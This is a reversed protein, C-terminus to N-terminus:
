PCGAREKQPALIVPSGGESPVINEQLSLPLNCDLFDQRIERQALPIGVKECLRYAEKYCRKAAVEDHTLAAYHGMNSLTFIHCEDYGETLKSVEEIMPRMKEPEGKQAYATCLINQAWMTAWNHGKGLVDKLNKELEEITRKLEPSKVSCMRLKVRLTNKLTQILFTKNQLAESIEQAKLLYSLAQQREEMSNHLVALGNLGVITWHYFKASEFILISTELLKKAIPLNEHRYTLILGLMYKTIGVEREDKVNKLLANMEFLELATDFNGLFFHAIGIHNRMAALLPPTRCKGSVNNYLEIAERYRGIWVLRRIANKIAHFRTGPHSATQLESLIEGALQYEEHDVLYDSAKLLMEKWQHRKSIEALDLIFSRYERENLTELCQALAKKFPRCNKVYKALLVLSRCALRNFPTQLVQMNWYKCAKDLNLPWQKKEVFEELVDHPLCGDRTHRIYGFQELTSLTFPHVRHCKCFLGEDLFGGCAIVATMCRITEQPIHGELLTKQGLLKTLMQRTRLANGQSANLLVQSLSNQLGCKEILQETEESSFPMAQWEFLDGKRKKFFRHPCKHRSVLVYPLSVSDLHALIHESLDVSLRDIHDVIVLCTPQEDKIHKLTHSFLKEPPRNFFLESKKSRIQEILSQFIMDIEKGSPISIYVANEVKDQLQEAIVTKGLGAEGWMWILPASASQLREQLIALAKQRELLPSSDRNSYLQPAAYRSELPWIQSSGIHYAEPLPLEQALLSGEVKKLIELCTPRTEFRLEGIAQLLADTFYGSKRVPDEYSAKVGSSFVCFLGKSNSTSLIDSDNLPNELSNLRLRCADIFLFTQQPKLGRILQMLEVLRLGSGLIDRSDTDHLILSSENHKLSQDNEREGHGAFYLIFKAEVDFETRCDYFAKIISAKTAKENSVTFIWEKPVGWSELSAAFHKADEAAGPIPHFAPDKYNSIGIILAVTKM